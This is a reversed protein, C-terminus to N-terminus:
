SREWLSKQGIPHNDLRPRSKRSWSGGKTEYLKKFGAALLSTGKERTLTYTIMRKYGMAKAARWAAAYLKSAANKHRITCCRTVEITYGDNLLRAVPNGATIVGVIEEGNNVAIGFKYGQPPLHHSHHMEIFKCVERYSIPQLELM